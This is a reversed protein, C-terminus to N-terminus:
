EFVDKNIDDCVEDFNHLIATGNHLAELRPGIVERIHKVEDPGINNNESVYFYKRLAERVVESASGYLGSNVRDKVMNELGPPLSVHM